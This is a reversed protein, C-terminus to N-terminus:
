FTTKGLPSQCPESERTFVAHFNDMAVHDFKVPYSARANENIAEVNLNAIFPM